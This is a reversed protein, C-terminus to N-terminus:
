PAPETAGKPDHDTSYPTTGSYRARTQESNQSQQENTGHGSRKHLIDPKPECLHMFLPALGKYYCFRLRRKRQLWQSKWHADLFVSYCDVGSCTDLLMTAVGFRRMAHKVYVYHMCSDDAVIYGVFEGDSVALKPATTKLIAKIVAQQIPYYENGGSHRALRTLKFSKLWSDLIFNMHEKADYDVIETM